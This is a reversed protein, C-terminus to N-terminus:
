QVAKTKKMKEQLCRFNQSYNLPLFIQIGFLYRDTDQQLNYNEIQIKGCRVASLLNMVAHFFNWDATADHLHPM